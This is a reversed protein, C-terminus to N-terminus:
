PHRPCVIGYTGGSTYLVRFTYSKKHSQKGTPIHTSYSSSPCQKPAKNKITWTSSVLSLAVLMIMLAIPIFLIHLAPHVISLELCVEYM